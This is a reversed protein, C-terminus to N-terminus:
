RGHKYPAAYWEAEIELPNHDHTHTNQSWYVPVDLPVDWDIWKPSQMVAWIVRSQDYQLTHVSEHGFVYCLNRYDRKSSNKLLVNDAYTSSQGAVHDYFVMRGSQLSKNADFNHGSALLYVFTAFSYPRVQIRLQDDYTVSMFGVPISVSVKQTIGYRMIADGAREIAISEYNYLYNKHLGIQATTSKAFCLVTGGLLGYKFGRLFAAGRGHGKHYFAAGAGTIIGSSIANVAVIQADKQRM